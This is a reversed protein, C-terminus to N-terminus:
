LKEPSKQEFQSFLAALAQSDEFRGLVKQSMASRITAADDDRICGQTVLTQTISVALLGYAAAEVSDSSSMSRSFSEAGTYKRGSNRLENYRQIIDGVSAM